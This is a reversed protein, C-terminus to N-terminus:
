GGLRRPGSGRRGGNSEPCAGGRFSSRDDRVLLHLDRLRNNVPSRRNSRAHSPLDRRRQRTYRHSSWPKCRRRLHRENDPSIACRHRWFCAPGAAAGRATRSHFEAGPNDRSRRFCGWAYFSRWVALEYNGGTISGASESRKGMLFPTYGRKNRQWSVPATKRYMSANCPALSAEMPELLVTRTRLKPRAALSSMGTFVDRSVPQRTCRSLSNRPARRDRLAKGKKALMGDLRLM